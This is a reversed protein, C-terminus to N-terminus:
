EDEDGFLINAKLKASGFPSIPGEFNESVTGDLVYGAETWKHVELKRLGPYLHWLFPVRSREYIRKKFISIRPSEDTVIECVWDPVRDVPLAKPREPMTARLWGAFDSILFSDNGYPFALSMFLWWRETGDNTDRKDFRARLESTLSGLCVSRLIHCLKEPWVEGELLEQREEYVTSEQFDRALIKPV